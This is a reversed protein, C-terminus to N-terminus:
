PKEPAAKLVYRFRDWEPEGLNCVSLFPEVLRIVDASGSPKPFLNGPVVLVGDFDVEGHLVLPINQADLEGYGQLTVSGSLAIQFRASDAVRRLSLSELRVPRHETFYISCEISAQDSSSRLTAGDLSQW